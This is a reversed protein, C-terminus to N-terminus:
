DPWATTAPGGVSQLRYVMIKFQPRVSRSSITSCLSTLITPSFLSRVLRRRTFSSTLVLCLSSDLRALLEGGLGTFYRPRDFGEIHDLLYSFDSHRLVKGHFVRVKEDSPDSTEGFEEKVKHNFPESGDAEEKAQETKVKTSPRETKAKSSSREAKVKSGSGEAKVLPLGEDDDTNLNAEDLQNHKRKKSSGAAPSAKPRSPTPTARVNDVTSTQSQHIGHAKMM